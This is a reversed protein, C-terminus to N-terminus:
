KTREQMRTMRSGKSRCAGDPRREYLQQCTVAIAELGEPKWRQDAPVRQVSRVKTVKQKVEEFVYYENSSKSYGMIYGYAWRADLKGLADSQPGKTPLMHMVHEGFGVSRKAYSKGKVRQYSTLGDAGVVRTNLLWATHEVLWTMTPHSTPIKKGLRNELCLKLTRLLKTVQKVANEIDRNSRSDYRVAQEENIQELEQVEVRASRLSDKLVKVIAPENDSKLIIKTNGVWAIDEVLRAVAYGDEDAGKAEVAHAFVTKSKSDKAVLVKMEIEEGEMLDEKRVVRSKTCYLYDM